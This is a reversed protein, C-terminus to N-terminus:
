PKKTERSMEDKVASMIIDFANPVESLDIKCEVEREKNKM